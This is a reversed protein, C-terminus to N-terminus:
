QFEFKGRAEEKTKKILSKTLGNIQEQTSSSAFEKFNRLQPNWKEYRGYEKKMADFDLLLGEKEAASGFHLKMRTNYCDSLCAQAIPMGYYFNRNFNPIEKHNLGCSDFCNSFVVRRAAEQYLNKEYVEASEHRVANIKMQDEASTGGSNILDNNRALM